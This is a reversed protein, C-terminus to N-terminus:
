FCMYKQIDGLVVSRSERHGRNVGSKQGSDGLSLIRLGICIYIYIYIYIYSDIEIHTYMYIYIYIHEYVNYIYIYMYIYIYICIHLRQGPDESSAGAPGSELLPVGCFSFSDFLM